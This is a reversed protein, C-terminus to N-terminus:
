EQALDGAINERGSLWTELKERSYKKLKREQILAERKSEFAIVGVFRWPGQYATSQVENSNHQALRLLPHGSVGKYYKGSPSEIVYLYFFMFFLM